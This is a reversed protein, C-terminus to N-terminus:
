PCIPCVGFFFARGFASGAGHMSYTLRSRAKPHGQDAAKRYWYISKNEEGEVGFSNEITFGLLYQAEAYGQQAAKRIWALGKKEDGEVGLAKRYIEGVMYQAEANGKIAHPLLIKLAQEYLENKFAQRGDVLSGAMEGSTLEPSAAKNPDTELDDESLSQQNVLEQMDSSLDTNEEDSANKDDFLSVLMDLIGGTSEKDSDTETVTETAEKPNLDPQNDGLDHDNKGTSNPMDGSNRADTSNTTDKATGSDGQGLKQNIIESLKVLSQRHGQDAALRYWKLAMDPDKAVGLGQEYIQGLIYQAKDYGDEAVPTLAERAVIYDGREFAEFGDPKETFSLFVGLGVLVVFLPLLLFRIM